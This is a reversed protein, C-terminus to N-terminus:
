TNRGSPAPPHEINDTFSSSLKEIRRAHTAEKRLTDFLVRKASAFCDQQEYVPKGYAAIHAHIVYDAVMRALLVDQPTGLRTERIRDVAEMTMEDPLAIAQANEHYGRIVEELRTLARKAHITNTNQNDTALISDNDLGLEALIESKLAIHADPIKQM